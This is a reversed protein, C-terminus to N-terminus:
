TIRRHGGKDKMGSFCAFVYPLLSGKGARLSGDISTALICFYIHVLWIAAHKVTLDQRYRKWGNALRVRAGSGNNGCDFPSFDSLIGM